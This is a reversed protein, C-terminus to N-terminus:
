RIAIYTSKKVYIQMQTKRHLDWFTLTYLLISNRIRNPETANSMYPMFTILSPSCFIAPLRRLFMRPVMVVLRKVPISVPAKMVVEMWDDVAVVTIVTLKTLAPSSESECAMLTMMPALMPVVAVAHIITSPPLKSMLTMTYLPMMSAMASIYVFFFVLMPSNMMPSASMSSPSVVSFIFAM